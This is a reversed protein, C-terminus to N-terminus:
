SAEAPRCSDHVVAGERTLLTATIIEDEWDISLSKSEADVM